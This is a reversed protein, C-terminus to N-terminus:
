PQVEEAEYSLYRLMVLADERPQEYYSRRVGATTFGFREYLCIAASNSRRVELSLLKLRKEEALRMIRGMLMNGVGRQRKQPLVAVNMVSAEDLVIQCGAYGACAGDEQAVYFFALPNHLEEELMAYSWPVSFCQREIKMLQDLHGANM